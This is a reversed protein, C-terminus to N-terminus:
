VVVTEQYEGFVKRMAGAIEGVTCHGEVAELIAPMLNGGGRAIVTVANLAAHWRHPDRRLRLAKVREVQKRELSEDIRQTPIEIETEQAFRNVGVVVADGSDVQQQTKYAANQIEQQVWGREIARLMGGM